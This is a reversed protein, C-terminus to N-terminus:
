RGAAAGRSEIVAARAGSRSARRREDRRVYGGGQDDCRHASAAENKCPTQLRSEVSFAAEKRLDDHLSRKSRKQGRTEEDAGTGCVNPATRSCHSRVAEAARAAPEAACEAACGASAKM